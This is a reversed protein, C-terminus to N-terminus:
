TNEDFWNRNRLDVGMKDKKNQLMIQQLILRGATPGRHCVIVSNPDKKRSKVLLEIPQLEKQKNGPSKKCNCTDDYNCIM